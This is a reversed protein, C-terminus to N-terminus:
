RTATNASDAQAFSILSGFQGFASLTRRDIGSSNVTSETYSVEVNSFRDTLATLENDTLTRGGFRSLAAIAGLL